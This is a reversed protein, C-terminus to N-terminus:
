FHPVTIDLLLCAYKFNIEMRGGNYVIVSEIFNDVMESTLKKVETQPLLIQELELELAQIQKETRDIRLAIMERETMYHERNIIGDKYKEYLSVKNQTLKQVSKHLEQIQALIKNKENKSLKSLEANNCRLRGYKTFVEIQRCITEFLAKEIKSELIRGQVCDPSHTYKSTECILVANKDNSRKLALGCGGCRIKGYIIRKKKIKEGSKNSKVSIDALCKRRKKQAQMFIEQSIIAEFANERIIWENPPVIVSKKSGAEVSRYKGYISKGTYREDSIINKITQGSWFEIGGTRKWNQTCNLFLRRYKSPTPIGNANLTKAIETLKVGSVAMDFIQRVIAAAKEDIVLKHRDEPSKVYGFISYNSINEGKEWKVKKATKIKQSIDKAYLDHILNMFAVNLNGASVAEKSSDYGDNVSIFRIGMLPFVQEIYNGVEIYNRGFRSFDKVIICNVGGSKVLELLRKMGPRDFNTGSWGDDSIEIVKSDCLDCQNEVFSTLLDRQNTISDSEGHNEDALSLRLYIATVYGNM